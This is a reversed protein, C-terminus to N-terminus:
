SEPLATVTLSCTLRSDIPKLLCVEPIQPDSFTRLAQLERRSWKWFQTDTKYLQKVARLADPYPGDICRQKEVVGFGGKGLTKEKRWRETSGSHGTTHLTDTEEGDSIIRAPLKLDGFLDELSSEM